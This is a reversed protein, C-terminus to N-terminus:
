HLFYVFFFLALYAPLPCGNAKGGPLTQLRRCSSGPLTLRM